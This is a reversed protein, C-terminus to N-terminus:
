SVVGPRGSSNTLFNGWLYCSRKKNFNICLQFNHPFTVL